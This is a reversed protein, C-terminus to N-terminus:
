FTPKIGESHTNTSASQVADALVESGGLRKLLRTRNIDAYMEHCVREFTDQANNTLLWRLINQESCLDDIRLQKPLSLEPEVISLQNPVLGGSWFKLKFEPAVCALFNRLGVKELIIQEGEYDRPSPELGYKIKFESLSVVRAIMTHITQNTMCSSNSTEFDQLQKIDNCTGYGFPNLNFDQYEEIRSQRIKAIEEAALRAPLGGDQVIRSAGRSATRFVIQPEQMALLQEGRVPDRLDAIKDFFRYAVNPTPRAHTKPAAVTPATRASHHRTPKGRM